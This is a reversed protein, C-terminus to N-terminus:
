MLVSAFGMVAILVSLPRRLDARKKKVSMVISDSISIGSNNQLKKRKM